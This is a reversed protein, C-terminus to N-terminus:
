GRDLWKEEIDDISNLLDIVEQARDTEAKAELARVLAGNALASIVLLADIDPDNVWTDLLYSVEYGHGNPALVTVMENDNDDIIKTILDAM